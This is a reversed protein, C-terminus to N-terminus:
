VFNTTALTGTRGVLHFVLDANTQYGATGNLDVPLFTQGALMGGSPTFLM